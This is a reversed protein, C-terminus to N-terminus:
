NEMMVRTFRFFSMAMCLFSELLFLVDNMIGEQLQCESLHKIVRQTTANVINPQWKVNGEYLNNFIFMVLENLRIKMKVHPLFISRLFNGSKTLM